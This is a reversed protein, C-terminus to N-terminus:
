FFLDISNNSIKNMIQLFRQEIFSRKIFSNCYERTSPSTKVLCSGLCCALHYEISKNEKIQNGNTEKIFVEVISDPSIFQQFKSCMEEDNNLYELCKEPKTKVFDLLINWTEYSFRSKGTGSGQLLSLPGNKIYDLAKTINYLTKAFMIFLFRRQLKGKKTHFYSNSM